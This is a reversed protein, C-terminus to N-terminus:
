RSREPALLTTADGDVVLTGDGDLCTLLVDLAANVHEGIQEGARLDVLNVHLDSTAPTWRIRRHPTEETRYDNAHIADIPM